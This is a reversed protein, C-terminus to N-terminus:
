VEFVLPSNMEACDDNVIDLNSKVPILKVLMKRVAKVLASGLLAFFVSSKMTNKARKPDAHTNPVM